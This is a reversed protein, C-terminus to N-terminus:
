YSSPEPAAPVLARLVGGFFIFPSQKHDSSLELTFNSINKHIHSARAARWLSSSYSCFRAVWM